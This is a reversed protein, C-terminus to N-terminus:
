ANLQSTKHQQQKKKPPMTYFANLQSTKHQKKKKKQPM